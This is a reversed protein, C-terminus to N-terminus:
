DREPRWEEMFYRAVAEDSFRRKEGGVEQTAEHGKGAIVVIDRNRAIGIAAGIAERRDEIVRYRGPTMGKEIDSIIDAPNESRPNDSTVVVLDSWREAAKGMLPRKERDRDGGCGFVTIIRKPSLKRVAGLVNELADPTHAYDIFVKFPRIGAVSELRGPVQPAQALNEISERLNIGLASGAALAALANYTNHRGVHPLRVLFSRKKAELRFTSGNFDSRSDVARFDCNVGFGFSFIRARGEFRRILRCGFVDDANIVMAPREEGASGALMEFFSAKAEFYAEMSGHYDLHDHSLNTFIGAAFHVGRVRAQAVGHSSIEAVVGRCGQDRMRALLEQFDPSEPTTRQAPLIEGGTNYHVTGLFGCRKWTRELIHHLFFATTTKGNTGTIGTVAMTESPRGYFTASIDAMANRANAVEIWTVDNGVAAASEAVVAVAGGGVADGAFAAGNHHDGPLAFFLAGQGCRRSDYCLSAIERDLPGTLAKCTMGELLM